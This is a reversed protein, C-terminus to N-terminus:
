TKHDVPVWVDTDCCLLYALFVMKPNTVAVDRYSSSSSCCSSSYRMEAMAIRDMQRDTQGDMVRTSWDFTICALIVLDEGDAAHFVRTEPVTFSEMFESPTVGVLAGNARSQWWIRHGQISFYPNKHFFNQSKWGIITSNTCQIHHVISFNM